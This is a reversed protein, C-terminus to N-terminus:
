GVLCGQHNHAQSSVCWQVCVGNGNDDKDDILEQLEETTFHTNAVREQYAQHVDVM